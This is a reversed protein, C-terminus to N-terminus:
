LFEEFVVQIDFWLWGAYGCDGVGFAVFDSM